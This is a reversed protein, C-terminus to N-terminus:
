AVDKVGPGEATDWPHYSGFGAEAGFRSGFEEDWEASDDARAQTRQLHRAFNLVERAMERPMTGVVRILEDLDGNM